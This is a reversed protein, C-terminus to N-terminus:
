TEWDRSWSEWLWVGFGLFGLVSSSLAGVKPTHRATEQSCTPTRWSLSTLCASASGWTTCSRHADAYVCVCVCHGLPGAGWCERRLGEGGLAPLIIGMKYSALLRPAAHPLWPYPAEAPGKTVLCILTVTVTGGGVTHGGLDSRRAETEGM